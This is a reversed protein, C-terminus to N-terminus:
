WGGRYFIVATPKRTLEARLSVPKGDLDHVTVDPVSAGVLLPQIDEASEAAKDAFSASAFGLALTLALPLLTRNM